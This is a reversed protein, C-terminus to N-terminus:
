MKQAEKDKPIVAALPELDKVAQLVLKANVVVSSLQFTPGRHTKKGDFNPDDLLKQEYEKMASECQTQLLDALHKLDAESKEQLEADGAIADLRFGFIFCYDVNTCHLIWVDLKIGQCVQEVTTLM